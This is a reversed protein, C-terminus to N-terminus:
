NLKVKDIQEVLSGGKTDSTYKIYSLIEQNWGSIVSVNNTDQRYQELLYKFDRESNYNYSDDYTVMDTLVILRDTHVNDDIMARMVKYANTSHGVDTNKIRETNKLITDHDSVYVRAIDEGFVYVLRRECLGVAVAGLLAAIDIPYIDSHKSIPDFTMSGSNDCAIVTTGDLRPLNKTSINMADEIAYAIEYNMGRVAKWASYWRFPLQRSNLVVKENRLM